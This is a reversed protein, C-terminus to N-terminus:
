DKFCRHISIKLQTLFEKNIM